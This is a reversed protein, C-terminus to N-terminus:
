DDSAPLQARQAALDAPMQAYVHDFIGTAPPEPLALCGARVRAAEADVRATLRSTHADTWLGEATLWSLMRTLPDRAAWRGTEAADRYRTPDDSTTHAGMRYTYAEVLTPGDGARARRLARAVVAHVALVDNGDVRVGPFGYGDARKWIPQHTQRRRPESIAWQNNECLFVVPAAFVSAWVFAEALEGQSTAGDGFTTLVADGRGHRQAGMAYGTAHLTQAPIIVSYTNINHERPNWAGVHTGRWFRLMHVWDVSRTYALGHDRYTPFAFDDPHLARGSGIQTAEQGLLSPWLALQGQRQLAESERDLRRVLVMDEYLARLDDDTLADLYPDLEPDARRRGQPTLLQVGVQEEDARPGEGPARRAPAPAGAALDLATM